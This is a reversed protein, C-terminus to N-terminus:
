IPLAAELYYNGVRLSSSFTCMFAGLDISCREKAPHIRFVTWTSPVAFLAFDTDVM